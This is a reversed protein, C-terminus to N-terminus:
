KIILEISLVIKEKELACIYMKQVKYRCLNIPSNLFNKVMSPMGRDNCLKVNKM